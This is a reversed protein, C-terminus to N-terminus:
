SPPPVPRSSQQGAKHHFMPFAYTWHFLQIHPAISKCSPSVLPFRHIIDESICQHIFRRCRWRDNAIGSSSHRWYCTTAANADERQSLQLLQKQLLRIGSSDQQKLHIRSGGSRNRQDQLIKTVNIGCFKLNAYTSGTCFILSFFGNQSSSSLPHAYNHLHHAVFLIHHALM